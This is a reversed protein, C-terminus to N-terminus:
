VELKGQLEEILMQQAMIMQEQEAIADWVAVPDIPPIDVTEGDDVMEVAIFVGDIYVSREKPLADVDHFAFQDPQLEVVAYQWDDYPQWNGQKDVFIRM